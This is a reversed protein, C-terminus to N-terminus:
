PLNVEVKATKRLQELLGQRMEVVYLERVEEKIKTYDSPQGPKRDTVKILHMGYDTQVVDSVEGVKLAFAAKGFAEEVALKRPFYGIDGGAPASSCQSNKKAAEAFEVKGAVIDQRLAQLKAKADAREQEPATPPVRLVIHSARVGVRDFYDKYDDYYKKLDAETVHDKVYGGWQMMTLINSRLQADTQATDKCFDQLTKGQKKLSDALEAVRKDVEAVPITPGNKRLFKELLIDDILMGVAEMQMQKRQVETLPAPTPPAQKLVAEVEAFTIPMGEVVAIPKAGKTETQAPAGSAVVLLAAASALGHLVWTRAKM